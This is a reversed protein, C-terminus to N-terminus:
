EFRLRQKFRRQKMEAVVQEHPITRGAEIDALGEEVAALVCLEEIARDITTEDPLTEIVALINQKMSMRLNGQILQFDRRRDHVLERARVLDRAVSLFARHGPIACSVDEPSNNRQRGLGRCTRRGRRWRCRM